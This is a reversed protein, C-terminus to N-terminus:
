TNPIFRFLRECDGFYAITLPKGVEAYKPDTTVYTYQINGFFGVTTDEAAHASISAFAASSVALAVLSKKM